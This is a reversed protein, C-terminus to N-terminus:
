CGLVHERTWMVVMGEVEVVVVSVAIRGGNELEGRGVVVMVVLGRLVMGGGCRYRGIVFRDEPGMVGFGGREEYM